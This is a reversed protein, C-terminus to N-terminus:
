KKKKKEELINEEGPCVRGALWGPVLVRRPPKPKPVLGLLSRGQAVRGMVRKVSEGNQTGLLAFARISPFGPTPQNLRPHWPWNMRRGNCVCVGGSM